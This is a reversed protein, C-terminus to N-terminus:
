QRVQTGLLRRLLRDRLEREVPEGEPAGILNRTEEPDNELDFLLYGRGESDCAYKWGPTRVMSRDRIESLVENRLPASPDRLCPWLSRGLCRASPEAGVAELLTPFVDITEVLAESVGGSPIRGPWRVTMAIRIASEFFVSKHLRGHDGLMEGHDSWHVVLADELWGRREYAKLVEGFWDDLLSVKGYYLAHIRRAQVEDVEDLRDAEFRERAHAPLTEPLPEPAIGTPCDAPDYREAYRGPPDWPEHPGGFGVFLCLPQEGDYGDVLEVAKRGIYADLHEEEPLPSPWTANWSGVERRKEYDEKFVKWLGKTEWHDTMYSRTGCTAWPGTTEHVTDIGRARMYPERERLHQGAHSYFHSKGVYAVHYGMQQLHHFFTEDDAPLEGRNQWMGHNHPYLGSVFSARAPMCVPCVTCASAFRVGEAALRDMNPTQLQPTGACGMADGRQQDCMLILIPPLDDPM